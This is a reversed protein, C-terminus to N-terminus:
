QKLGCNACFLADEELETGCKKCKRIKIQTPEYKGKEDFSYGCMNCFRSEIITKNECAPCRKLGQKELESDEIKRLEGYLNKIKEFSDVYLEKITTGEKHEQYYIEGIRAFNEKIDNIIKEKEMVNKGKRNTKDDIYRRVMKM